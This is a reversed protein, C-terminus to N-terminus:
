YSQGAPDKQGTPLPAGEGQGLLVKEVAMRATDFAVHAAQAGAV